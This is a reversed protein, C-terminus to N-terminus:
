LPHSEFEYGYLYRRQPFKTLATSSLSFNWCSNEKWLHHGYCEREILRGSTSYLLHDAHTFITITHLTTIQNNQQWLTNKDDAPPQYLGNLPSRRQVHELALVIEMGNRSAAPTSWYAIYCLSTHCTDSGSICVSLSQSCPQMCRHNLTTPQRSGRRFQALLHQLKRLSARNLSHRFYVYKGYIVSRVGEWLRRRRAVDKSVNTMEPSPLVLHTSYIVRIKAGINTISWSNYIAVSGDHASVYANFSKRRAVCYTWSGELQDKASIGLPQANKDKAPTNYKQLRSWSSALLPNHSGTYVPQSTKQAGWRTRSVQLHWCSRYSERTKLAILLAKSTDM